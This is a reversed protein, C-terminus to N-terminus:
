TVDDSEMAATGIHSFARMNTGMTVVFMINRISNEPCKYGIFRVLTNALVIIFKRLYCIRVHPHILSVVKSLLNRSTMVILMRM